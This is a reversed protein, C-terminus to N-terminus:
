IHIGKLECLRKQISGIRINMSDLYHKAYKENVTDEYETFTYQLAHDTLCNRTCIRKAVLHSM